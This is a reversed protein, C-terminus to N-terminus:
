SNSRQCTERTVLRYWANVIHLWLAVNDDAESGCSPSTRGTSQRLVHHALCFSGAVIDGLVKSRRFFHRCIQLSAKILRLAVCREDGLRQAINCAGPAHRLDSTIGAQRAFTEVFREGTLTTGVEVCDELHYIGQPQSQVGFRSM